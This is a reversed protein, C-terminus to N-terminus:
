SEGPQMDEANSFRSGLTSCHRKQQQYWDSELNGDDVRPRKTVRIDDDILYIKKEEYRRILHFGYSKIVRSNSAEKWHFQVRLRDNDVKHKFYGPVLFHMLVHNGRLCHYRGDAKYIIVGGRIVSFNFNFDLCTIYGAHETAFAVAFAIGTIEGDVHATVDIDIEYEDSNSISVEERYNFWHPIENGSIL